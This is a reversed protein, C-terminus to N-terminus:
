EVGDDDDDELPDDPNRLRIGVYMRVREGNIRPRAHGVGPVAAAIDRVVIGLHHIPGPAVVAAEIGTDDMQGVVRGRYARTM